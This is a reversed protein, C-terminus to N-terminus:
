LLVRIKIGYRDKVYEKLIINFEKTELSFFGKVHDFYEGCFFWDNDEDSNYVLITRYNKGKGNENKEILFFGTWMNESGRYHDGQIQVYEEYVLPDFLKDLYKKIGLLDEPASQTYSLVSRFLM